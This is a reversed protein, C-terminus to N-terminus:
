IFCIFGLFGYIDVFIETLSNGIVMEDQEIIALLRVESVIPDMRGAFARLVNLLSSGKYLIRWPM